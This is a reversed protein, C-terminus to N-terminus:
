HTLRSSRISMLRVPESAYDELEIHDWAKDVTIRAAIWMRGEGEGDRDIQMEIITFPYGISRPRMAAEWFGIPRDTLVTVHRGGDTVPDTWALRLDQGLSSPARLTGAPQRDRLADLLAEPGEGLLVAMLRDREASTSWRTILIDVSGTWSRGDGMQAAFATFREPAGFAQGRAAASALLAVPIATVFVFFARCLTRM